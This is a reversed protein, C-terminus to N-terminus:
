KSNIRTGRKELAPLFDKAKQNETVWGSGNPQDKYSVQAAHCVTIFKNCDLLKQRNGITRSCYMNFAGTDNLLLASWRGKDIESAWGASM